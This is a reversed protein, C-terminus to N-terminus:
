ACEPWNISLSKNYKNTEPNRGIQLLPQGFQLVLGRMAHLKSRGSVEPQKLQLINTYIM